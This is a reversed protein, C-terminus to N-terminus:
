VLGLYDSVMDACADAWERIERKSCGRRAVGKGVSEITTMLLQTSFEVDKSVVNGVFERFAVAAENMLARHERTDRFYSQVDELLIRLQPPEGSEVEFFHRTIFRVKERPSWQEHVLAARVAEWTRRMEREHLAFMLSEKNAFYQYLSGVSIGAAEAVRITTFRHAGFKELVRISAQLVDERMQASRAQRPTKRPELAIKRRMSKGAGFAFVFRSHKNTNHACRGGFAM